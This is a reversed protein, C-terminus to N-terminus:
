VFILKPSYVSVLKWVRVVFFISVPIKRIPKSLGSRRDRRYRAAELGRLRAYVFSERLVQGCGTAAKEHLDHCAAGDAAFGFAAGFHCAEVRGTLSRPPTQGRASGVGPRNHLRRVFAIRRRMANPWTAGHM